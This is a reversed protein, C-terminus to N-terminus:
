FISEATGSPVLDATSAVPIADEARYVDIWRLSGYIEFHRKTKELPAILALRGGAAALQEAFQSLFLIAQQSIFRTARLDIGIHKKGEGMAQSLHASLGSQNFADIRAKAVFIHWSEAEPARQEM